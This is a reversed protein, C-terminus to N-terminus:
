GAQNHPRDFVITFSSTILHFNNVSTGYVAEHKKAGEEYNEYLEIIQGQSIRRIINHLGVELLQPEPIGQGAHRIINERTFAITRHITSDPAGIDIAVNRFNRDDRRALAYQFAEEYDEIPILDLVSHTSYRESHVIEGAHSRYVGYGYRNIPNDEDAGISSVTHISEHDSESEPGDSYAEIIRKSTM